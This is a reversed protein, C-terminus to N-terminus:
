HMAPSERGNNPMPTAQTSQHIAHATSLKCSSVTDRIISLSCASEKNHATTLIATSLHLGLAQDDSGNRRDGEGMKRMPSRTMTCICHPWGPLLIAYPLLLILNGIVGSNVRIDSIWKSPEQQSRTRRATHTFPFDSCKVPATKEFEFSSAPSYV